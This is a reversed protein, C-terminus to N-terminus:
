TWLIDTVQARFHSINRYSSNHRPTLQLQWGGWPWGGVIIRSLVETIGACNWWVFGGSNTCYPRICWAWTQIQQFRPACILYVINHFRIKHMWRALRFYQYRLVPYDIPKECADCWFKGGKRTAGKRCKEGGCSPYNWGKRTRVNDIMVTCNFIM